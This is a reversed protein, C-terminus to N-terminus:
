VTTPVSPHSRLGVGNVVIVRYEHKVGATASRDVLRMEPLPQEPTDHYSMSQFLPRGFKGVPKEPIQALDKGDRQIIFALIGSEFDAEAEWTVDISQDPQRTARVNFAAPPPTADPVAGTKVYEMWAKAVTRNPLWVAEDAKGTYVTLPEAKDSLPAALWATTMDVTKLKLDASGTDPLRMALCADFFPIALYRSDGCEHDTRPDPAFGIPAGKARYAKFMALTGNWAGNPRKDGSEEVGTNCMVPISYVAEPIEPRAMEGAEWDAYATGSRLWIAVIRDPYMTQMLSAWIGGGSHGWLCWPVSMLEPHEFKAAFDEIARLFTKVSGNRPDCWLRCDQTNGQRYSPGLLACDWKRALAQWHLDYAATEGGKCAWGCGHQHVIIGRLRAVGGPIWLTYDVGMQLEGPQASAPYGVALYRGTASVTGAVSLQRVFANTLINLQGANLPSSQGHQRIDRLTVREVTHKEDFGLLESPLLPGDIRVRELEVDRIQGREKDHGWMDATILCRLLKPEETLSNYHGGMHEGAPHSTVDIDEFRINSVTAGDSVHIGMAWHRAFLVDCRRFVMDRIPARTEYTAGLAYGWDDWLQCDEVTIREAQPEAQMTKAIIGDDHSRVFCRRVTVNSSNVLDIGDSNLRAGLIRVDEVAIDESSSININWGAADLLTVGEIRVDRSQSLKIMTWGHRPLLGADLIGRGAIRVHEAKAVRVMNGQYAPLGSWKAIVPKADAPLRARLVAGGAVYLTQGSKVELQGVEHVGSGYYIVNPDDARPTDKEPASVFLHLPLETSDDLLVTVSRPQALRFRIVGAKIEPVIGARAPLIRATRFTRQPRVEVTVPGRVDFIAFAAREAPTLERKTVLDGDERPQLLSRVRARYVFVPQQDVKLTFDASAPQGAPGPWTVLNGCAVTNMQAMGM